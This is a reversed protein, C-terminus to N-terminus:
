PCFSVKWCLLWVYYANQTAESPLPLYADEERRKADGHSFGVVVAAPGGAGSGALWPPRAAAGGRRGLDAVCWWGCGGRSAPGRQWPQGPDRRDHGSTPRSEGLHLSCLPESRTATTSCLGGPTPTLASPPLSVRRCSRAHSISSEASGQETSPISFSLLPTQPRQEHETPSALIQTRLEKV